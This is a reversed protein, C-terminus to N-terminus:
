HHRHPTSEESEKGLAGGYIEEAEGTLQTQSDLLFSGRAVVQEGESLGDLVVYYGAAMPGLKVQRLQYRGAEIEVFAISRTGTNIVASRPVVLVGEGGAPRGTQDIATIESRPIQHRIEVDVYMGPVFLRNTNDIEIRVDGTRTAEEISPDIFTVHGTFTEGPHSESTVAAEQGVRIAGIDNEFVAAIIWVRSLDAMLFLTQGETVYEGEVVKKEVITGGIPAHMTMRTEATGRQELDEIQRETIGWLLLKERAAPALGSNLALLYEKQASILEPSYIQALPAGAPFEMGAYEVYLKDIRGGVRAAIVALRTEDYAIEGAARIMKSLKRREVKVTAIRALRAANPGIVLEIEKATGPVDPEKYVPVLKMNCIPCLADPDDSRVTPHMGCTYYMIERQSEADKGSEGYVPVLKMNCIPCLAGPDDSRVEPHMSCTYYLVKGKDEQGDDQAASIGPLASVLILTLLLLLIIRAGGIMINVGKTKPGRLGPDYERARSRSASVM